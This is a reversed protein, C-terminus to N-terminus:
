FEMNFYDQHFKLNIVKFKTIEKESYVKVEPSIKTEPKTFALLIHRVGFDKDIYAKKVSTFFFDLSKYLRMSEKLKPYDEYIFNFHNLNPRNQEKWQKIM